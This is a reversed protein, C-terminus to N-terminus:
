HYHYHYHKSDYIFTQTHRLRQLLATERLYSKKEIANGYTKMRRDEQAEGRVNDLFYIVSVLM